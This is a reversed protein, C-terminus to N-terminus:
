ISKILLLFESEDIIPIKLSIAESLKSGSDNGAILYDTKNSIKNSVSGGSNKILNIIESRTYNDLKGTVVFRRNELINKTDSAINTM